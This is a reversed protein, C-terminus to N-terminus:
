KLAGVTRRITANLEDVENRLYAVERNRNDVKELLQQGGARLQALEERLEIGESSGLKRCLLLSQAAAEVASDREERLKALEAECQQVYDWHNGAFDARKVGCEPCDERKSMYKCSCRWCHVHVDSSM